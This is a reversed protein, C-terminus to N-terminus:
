TLALYIAALLAYALIVVCVLLDAASEPHTRLWDKCAWDRGTIM